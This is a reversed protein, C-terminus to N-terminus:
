KILFPLEDKSLSNAILHQKLQNDLNRFRLVAKKQTRLQVNYNFNFTNLLLKFNFSIYQNYTVKKSTNYDFNCTKTTSYDSSASKSVLETQNINSSNNSSSFGSFSIITALLAISAIFNQIRKFTLM